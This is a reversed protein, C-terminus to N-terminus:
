YQDVLPMIGWFKVGIKNLANADPERELKETNGDPKPRSWLLPSSHSVCWSNRTGADELFVAAVQTMQRHFGFVIIGHHLQLPM